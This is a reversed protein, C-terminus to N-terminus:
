FDLGHEGLWRLFESELSSDAKGVARDRSTCDNFSCSQTHRGARLAPISHGKGIGVFYMSLKGRVDDPITHFRNKTSFVCHVLFNPYTHAVFMGDKGSEEKNLGYQPRTAGPMEM